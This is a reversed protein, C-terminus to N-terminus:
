YGQNQVLNPNATIDTSPIPFLTRFSEVARGQPVAGKWPWVYDGGTYKNFRILDTRRHAEWNLERGREDLMFNLTLAGANINGSTNGYARIRLENIYQLATAADGGTGGRLVAEAYILYVDALRFMPFDTDPFNGQRDSGAEGTSSVNRFKTIPYGDTFTGIDNIEINQGSAHFMARTDTAGTPDDFLEVINKTTRIGSWGGNIGFDEPNMNGGVPAHVLYTMGGWSKTKLGDLTVPFIIEPSTNNDTLFLLRYEPSLQYGANIIKNCYTIAETYKAQGTYVEANLYMKALLTWAAAKDARGYENQRAETLDNELALLESELYNFLDARSIQEPFFSGVADEETVFPVNGFFDLAHYYSLARLFRAEHHFKKADELNTGTIGRTALKEDTTERIFENCLSIQYFIRDYMARIFENAPTWDMEHLDKITGDNWGIVAEDTTLEQLQWYQRLYTSFGEDIGQIDPRGDPGRQGSVAIGAYLKALILKYNGFDNYVSASTVDYFPLRDLKKTCGSCFLMVAILSWISRIIQHKM